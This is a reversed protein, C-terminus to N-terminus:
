NGSHRLQEPAQRLGPAVHWQLLGQNKHEEAKFKLYDKKEMEFLQRRYRDTLDYWQATRRSFRIEEPYQLADMFSQLALYYRVANRELAGRAGGIYVPNGRRDTGTVTFGEKGLGLTAFYVKEALRLSVGGSYAYSVCVFSKEGELPLAEFRMRHDKTGFPGAGASLVVDLYGLRQEVKHYRYIVQHAAEPPQYTKRGIYFTLLWENPLEGYTCAKVNPHLSVIDCWNAPVRLLKLVDEFPHDFIGCVDVKVRGGQESSDLFLPLGFSNKELRSMNRHYADLLLDEAQKPGDAASAPGASFLVAAAAFLLFVKM